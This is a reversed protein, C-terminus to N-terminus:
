KIENLKMRKWEMGKRLYMRNREMEKHDNM